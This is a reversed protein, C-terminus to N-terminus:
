SNFIKSSIFSDIGNKRGLYDLWKHPTYTVLYLGKIALKYGVNIVVDPCFAFISPAVWSSFVGLHDM